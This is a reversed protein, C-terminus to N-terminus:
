EMPPQNTQEDGIYRSVETELKEELPITSDSESNSEVIDGIFELIKHEGKPRKPLPEELPNNEVNCVSDIHWRVTM